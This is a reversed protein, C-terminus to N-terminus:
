ETVICRLNHINATENATMWMRLVVLVKLWAMECLETNLIAIDYPAFVPIKDEWYFLQVCTGQLLKYNM